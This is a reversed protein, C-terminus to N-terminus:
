KNGKMDNPRTPKNPNVLLEIKRNIYWIAKRYDEVTKDPSKIGARSLYKIANGIHYCFDKDEIYEIVEVKGQNYHSPHNVSDKTNKKIIKM